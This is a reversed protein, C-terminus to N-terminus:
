KLVVGHAPVQIGAWTLDHPIRPPCLLVPAPKRWTSRNGRDITLVSVAGYENIMMDGVSYLGVSVADNFLLNSFFFGHLHTTSHTYLEV